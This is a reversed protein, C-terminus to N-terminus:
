LEQAIVGGVGGTDTLDLSPHGLGQLVVLRGLAGRRGLRGLRKLDRRLLRAGLLRGLLLLTDFVALSITISSSFLNM